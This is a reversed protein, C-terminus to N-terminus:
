GDEKRTRKSVITNVAFQLCFELIAVVMGNQVVEMSGNCLYYISSLADGKHILYEGPACFNTRIHLSLLKLCGQSAAEFIPLQLIERHLHMSVDGACSKRFSERVEHIDIGHNLSWMTQFYDQMRQKLQKPDPAPHPLGQPRAVQDPLALAALVIRQIIATVNGFVVAHMLAPVLARADLLIVFQLPTRSGNTTMAHGRTEGANVFWYHLGCILSWSHSPSCSYDYRYFNMAGQIPTYRDM